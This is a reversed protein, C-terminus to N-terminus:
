FTLRLLDLLPTLEALMRRLAPGYDAALMAELLGQKHKHVEGCVRCKHIIVKYPQGKYFRGGTGCLVWRHRRDM